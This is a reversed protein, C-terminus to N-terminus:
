DKIESILKVYNKSIKEWLFNKKIYNHLFNYDKKYKKNNFNNLVFNIKKSISLPNIDTFYILSNKKLFNWPTFKSTIVINGSFLAELIVL